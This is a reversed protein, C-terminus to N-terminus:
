YHNTVGVKAELELDSKEKQLFYNLPFLHKIEELKM